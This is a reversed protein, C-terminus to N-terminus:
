CFSLLYSFQKQYLRSEVTKATGNVRQRHMCDLVHFTFGNKVASHSFYNGLLILEM